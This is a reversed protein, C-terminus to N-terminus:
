VRSIAVVQKNLSGVFSSQDPHVQDNGDGLGLLSTELTSEKNRGIVAQNHRRCHSQAKSQFQGSLCFVTDLEHTPEDGISLFDGHHRTEKRKRRNLLRQKIMRVM